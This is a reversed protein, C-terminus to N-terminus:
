GDPPENDLIRNAIESFCKILRVFEVADHEGMETFVAVMQDRLKKQNCRIRERGEETITV